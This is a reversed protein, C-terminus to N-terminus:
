FGAPKIEVFCIDFPELQVMVTFSGSSHQISLNTHPASNKTLARFEEESLPHKYNLKKWLDLCSNEASIRMEKIQWKGPMKLLNLKFKQPKTESDNCFLFQIKQQSGAQICWKNFRYIKDELSLIFRSLYYLPKKMGNITHTGHLDLPTDMLRLGSFWSTKDLTNIFDKLGKVADYDPSYNKYLNGYSDTDKKIAPTGQKKWDFVLSKIEDSSETYAAQKKPSEMMMKICSLPQKEADIEAHGLIQNKYLERYLKPHCGFWATFHDVYYKLNSFGVYNAIQTLSHDTSLLASESMEVRAMSVFNRFSDGVLRQFLHSLYYPNLNEDEAIASLSIKYPYNKYIFSIIRGIRDIQLMDYPIEHQFTKTDLEVSFSRFEKYIVDMLDLSLEKLRDEYGFERNHFESLISVIHSQILLAKKYTAIDGSINSSFVQTDLDPYYQSFFDIDLSLIVVSNNETIGRFGHVDDNHIFHIKSKSLKYRAYALKLEIEGELVYVVQITKDHMHWPYNRINLVDIRIPLNNEYLITQLM